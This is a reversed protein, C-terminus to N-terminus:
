LFIANTRSGSSLRGPTCCMGRQCNIRTPVSVLHLSNWDFIIRWFSSNWMRGKKREWLRGVAAAPLTMTPTAAL